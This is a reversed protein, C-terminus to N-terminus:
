SNVACREAVWISKGDRDVDIGHPWIFMGAGFSKVLTGNADELTAHCFLVDGLGRVDVYTGGPWAALLRSHQAGLQEATWRVPARLAEPVSRFWPTEMGQIQALVERDHQQLGLCVGLVPVDAERIADACVGFDKPNDPSGPPSKATESDGCAALALSAALLVAALTTRFLM